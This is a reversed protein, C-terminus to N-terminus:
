HALFISSAIPVNYLLMQNHMAPLFVHIDITYAAQQIM